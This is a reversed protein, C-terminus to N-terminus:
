LCCRFVVFPCIQGNHMMLFTTWSQFRAWLSSYLSSTIRFWMKYKKGFVLITLKQTDWKEISVWCKSHFDSVKQSFFHIWFNGNFFLKSPIKEVLGVSWVGSNTREYYHYKELIVECESYHREMQLSM